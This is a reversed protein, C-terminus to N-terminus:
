IQLPSASRYLCFPDFQLCYAVSIVCFNDCEAISVNRVILIGCPVDGTITPQVSLNNVFGILIADSFHHEGIM